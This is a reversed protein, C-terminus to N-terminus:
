TLLVHAYLCSACFSGTPHTVGLFHSRYICVYTKFIHKSALRFCKPTFSSTNGTLPSFLFSFLDYHTHFINPISFLFLVWFGSFASTRDSSRLRISCFLIYLSFSIFITLPRAFKKNSTKQFSSHVSVLNACLLLTATVCLM